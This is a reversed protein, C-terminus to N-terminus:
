HSNWGEGGVQIEFGCKLVNAKSIAQSGRRELVRRKKTNKRWTGVVERGKDWRGKGRRTGGALGKKGCNLVSYIELVNGV